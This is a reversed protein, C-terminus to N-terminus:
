RTNMDSLDVKKGGLDDSRSVSEPRSVSEVRASLSLGQEQPGRIVQNKFKGNLLHLVGDTYHLLAGRQLSRHSSRILFLYPSLGSTLKTTPSTNGDGVATCRHARFWGQERTKFFYSLVRHDGEITEIDRFTIRM